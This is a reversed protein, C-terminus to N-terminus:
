VRVCGGSEQMIVALIFRHDVATELAVQKISDYIAGIEPGNDDPGWNKWGCSGFMAPKNNDFMDQFSVWQEKTPRSEFSSYKRKGM